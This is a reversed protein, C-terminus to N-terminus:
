VTVSKALNRPKDVNKGLMIAFHYAFLQLPIVEIIPYFLHNKIHPIYIIDDAIKLEKKNKVSEDTILLINGNKSKIQNLIDLGINFLNDNPLLVVSLCHKDIIAIPGHKLEGLPYGCTEIYTLEKFKLAGEYAIPLHIGYGLFNINKIKKYKKVISKIKNDLLLTKSIYNSMKELNSIYNQGDQLTMNRDRALKLALLYFVVIQSTFSKTAAVGIEAGSRTYIGGSNTNEAIASGVVNVIGYTKFNKKNMEKLAHLSDATEGSQSVVFVATDNPNFNIKKYRSESAIENYVHIDTLYEIIEKGVMAANHASGCAITYINKIKKFFPIDDIIGGLIADGNKKDYRGLITNNIVKPQEYIEKLIFSSFGKKSISEHSESDIKCIKKNLINKSKDTYKFINKNLLENEISIEAMEGDHLTIFYETHRLIANNSSSVIFKDNHIGINLPSGNKVLYMKNPTEISIIALGFNGELNLVANQIADIISNNLNYRYHEILHPIIETDTDSVFKHGEKILKEKIKAYNLITGNHVVAITNKCDLHPHANIISPQGHTAWRNHGIAINSKYNIKDPYLNESPAGLIKYTKLKNAHILSIGASDYGRYELDILGNIIDNAICYEKKSLIGFIGCM